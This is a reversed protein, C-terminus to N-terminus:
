HKKNNNESTAINALVMFARKKINYINDVTVHLENAVIEPSADELLLRKLVFVYRENEINEFYINLDIKASIQNEPSYSSESTEVYLPEQSENEIMSSKKAIFYRITVTKLWQLLSSRNDFSKLRKADNEMLFLYIESVFEDYEVPYNFISRIISIFLPRCKKHFFWKTIQEDHQVLAQIIEQDNM